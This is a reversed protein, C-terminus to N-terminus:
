LEYAGVRRRCLRGDDKVMWRDSGVATVAYFLGKPDFNDKIRLLRPYHQGFFAKQFNPEFPDAENM